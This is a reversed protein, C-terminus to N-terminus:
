IKSSSRFSSPFVLSPQRPVEMAPVQNRACSPSCKCNGRQHLHREGLFPASPDGLESDQALLDQTGPKERM